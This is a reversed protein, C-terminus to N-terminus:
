IGLRDRLRRFLSRPEDLAGRQVQTAEATATASVVGMLSFANILRQAEGPLVGTADALEFVSFWGNSLLATMRIHDMHHVVATFNPWRELKYRDGSHLWTAPREDFATVGITWLLEDLDEGPLPFAPPAANTIPATEVLLDMPAVPLSDLPTPSTYARHRFDILLPQHGFATIRVITPMESAMLTHVAIAAKEWGAATPLFDSSSPYGLDSTPLRSDLSTM